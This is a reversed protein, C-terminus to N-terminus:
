HQKISHQYKKKYSKQINNDDVSFVVSGYIEDGNLQHYFVNDFDINTLFSKVKQADMNAQSNRPLYSTNYDDLEQM